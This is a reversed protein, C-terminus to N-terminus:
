RLYPHSVGAARLMDAIDTKHAAPVAAEYLALFDPGRDEVFVPKCAEYIEEDIFVGLKERDILKYVANLYPKAYARVEDLKGAAAAAILEQKRPYVREWADIRRDTLRRYDRYREVKAQLAAANADLEKITKIQSVIGSALLRGGIGLSKVGARAFRGASLSVDKAFRSAPATDEAPDPLVRPAFPLEHEACFDACALLIMGNDCTRALNAFRIAAKEDDGALAALEASFLKLYEDDPFLERYDIVTRAARAVAEDNAQQKADETAIFSWAVATHRGSPCIANLTRACDKAAEADGQDICLYLDDTAELCMELMENADTDGFQCHAADATQLAITKEVNWFDRRRLFAAWLGALALDPDIPPAVQGTKFHQNFHLAFLDQALTDFDAFDEAANSGAICDAALLDSANAVVSAYTQNFEVAALEAEASLLAPSVDCRILLQEMMADKCARLTAVAESEDILQMYDRTIVPGPINISAAAYPTFKEGAPFIRWGGGYFQQLVEFAGIPAQLEIDEFPVSVTEEFWATKLPPFGNYAGGSSHFCWSSTEPMRARFSREIEALAADRGHVSEFEKIERWRKAFAPTRYGARRKLWCQLEEWVLFDTMQAKREAADEHLPFLVFVDVFIGHAGGNFSSTSLPCSTNTDIFRGFLLPYDKETARDIFACGEPLKGDLALKQLKLYDQEFMVVDVDNDWPIFGRHRIAGLLGGFCISYSIGNDRCVRDLVSLHTTVAKQWDKAKHANPAYDFSNLSRM